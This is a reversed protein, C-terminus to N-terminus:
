QMATTTPTDGGHVIAIYHTEGFFFLLVLHILKRQVHLALRGQEGHVLIFHLDVVLSHVAAVSGM